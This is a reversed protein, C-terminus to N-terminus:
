CPHKVQCLVEWIYFEETTKSFKTSYFRDFSEKLFIYTFYKSFATYIALEHSPKKAKELVFKSHFWFSTVYMRNIQWCEILSYLLRYINANTFFLNMLFIQNEIWRNFYILIGVKRSIEAFNWFTQFHYM